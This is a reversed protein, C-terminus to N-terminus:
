AAAPSRRLTGELMAVAEAHLAVARDRTILKGEMDFTYGLLACDEVMRAATEVCALLVRRMNDHEAPYMASM